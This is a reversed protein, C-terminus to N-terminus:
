RAAGSFPPTGISALSTTLLFMPLTQCDLVLWTPLNLTPSVNTISWLDPLTSDLPIVKVPGTVVLLLSLIVISGDPDPTTFIPLTVIASPDIVSLLPAILKPSSFRLVVPEIVPPEKTTSVVVILAAVIVSVVPAILKPLSLRLVVPVNDAPLM